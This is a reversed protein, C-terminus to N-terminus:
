FDVEGVSGGAVGAGAVGDPPVPVPDPFAPPPPPSPMSCLPLGVEEAPEDGGAVDFWVPWGGVGGSRWAAERRGM